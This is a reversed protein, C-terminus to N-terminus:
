EDSDGRVASVAANLQVVDHQGNWHNRLAEVRQAAAEREDARIAEADECCQHVVTKFWPGEAEWKEREDARVRAILVCRCPTMTVSGDAHPVDPEWGCVPDHASM